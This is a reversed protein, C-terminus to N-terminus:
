KRGGKAYPIGSLIDVQEEKSLSLLVEKPNKGSEVAKKVKDVVELQEVAASTGMENFIGAAGLQADAAKLLAFFWEYVEPAATKSLEYLRTGLEDYRAPLAMFSAAKEIFERKERAEKELAAKKEAEAVKAALDENAKKLEEMRAEYAKELEAVRASSGKKVEEVESQFKGLDEKSVFMSKIKDLLNTLATAENQESMSLGGENKVVLFDVGIAGSDVLGVTEVDVDELRSAKM